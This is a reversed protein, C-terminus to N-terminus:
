LLQWALCTPTMRCASVRPFRTYTTEWAFLEVCELRNRRTSRKATRLSSRV